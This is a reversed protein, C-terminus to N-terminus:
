RFRRGCQPCLTQRIRTKTYNRLYVELDSWAGDEGRVKKCSTCVPLLDSLAAVTHDAEKLRLILHQREIAYRISRMLLSGTVKGKVLYDQVGEGLASLAVQDDDLGTLIVIPTQPAAASIRHYTDPGESDPLSLDLLIIEYPEKQLEKLAEALTGSLALDIPVQVHDSILDVFMQADDPNDEVLLLHLRKEAEPTTETTVTREGRGVTKSSTDAVVCCRLRHAWALM